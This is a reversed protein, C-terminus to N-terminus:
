IEREASGTGGRNGAGRGRGPRWCPGVERRLQPQAAGPMRGPQARRPPSPLLRAAALAEGRPIGPGIQAPRAAMAARLMWAPACADAGV